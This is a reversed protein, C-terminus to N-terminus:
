KKEGILELIEDRCAHAHEYALATVAHDALESLAEAAERLAAERTADREKVLQEIRNAAIDPSNLGLDRLRAILEEDTM